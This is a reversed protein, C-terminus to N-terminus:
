ARSTRIKELPSDLAPTNRWQDFVRRIKPDSMAISRALANAYLRNFVRESCEHPQEMLYPLAMIAYWSPNSVMQVTLSQNRLTDSKGSKMLKTFEFTKTVPGGAKGRIPLPLSETVFIRRSLMPLFGEEGDSVKGTSGVAKYTLFGLGDPVNLKWSFTKSEKAPIDFDLEPRTNGISKDASSNSWSENLALRVKGSQRGATQNSVKVTFELQDGERLFRPPNPQVMLDKATEAHAEIFGSRMEKDHAFGLFRWRTLAEPMTFELKVVGDKDSILQPFFFATENLNKRASVQSLDPSQGGGPDGTAKRDSRLQESRKELQKDSADGESVGKAMAMSAMPAAAMNMAMGDAMMMEGGEAMQRGRFMGGGM